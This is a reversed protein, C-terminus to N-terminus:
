AAARQKGARNVSDLALARDFHHELAADHSVFLVATGARASEALLLEIFRDRTDADLASTPEDAILLEPRGILARAAAVRQQQGVSLESVARRGLDALDLDLAQLLRGAEERLAAESAGARAARQRSFRCPLLVNEVLSLYPLLNFQQFIFGIHQGRFRDRGARGLRALTQGLIDISGGGPDLVGGLLGLLTSKGSGSPGRLFVKEGAGISLAPIDLLLPQGPWAFRLADIRVLESM